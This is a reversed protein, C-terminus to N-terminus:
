ALWPSVVVDVLQFNANDAGNAKRQVRVIEDAAKRLSPPVLLHTPKIALPRGEDGKLTTMADYAADFNTENLTQKSGFALQWFAYGGVMRADAGYVFENKMFVREDTPDDKAVFRAPKREQYIFPKVPKALDLLYWAAGSGTQVNSVSATAGNPSKVPHDTDFFFQGDFCHAAFGGAITGFVLEDPLTAAAAGMAAMMPTYVGFQDDEIANRPVAVTQEWDRNRLQYGNQGLNKIIRDGIWERMGPFQGLWAYTELATSSKVYTAFTKWQPKAEAFASQFAARYGTTLNSLNSSSIIM